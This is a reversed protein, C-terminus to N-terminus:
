YTVLAFPLSSFNGRSLWELEWFNSTNTVFNDTQRFNLWVNPKAFLFMRCFSVNSWTIKHIMEECAYLDSFCVAPEALQGQAVM